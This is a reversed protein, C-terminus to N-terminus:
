RCPQQERALHVVHEHEGEEHGAAHPLEREELEAECTVRVRVRM